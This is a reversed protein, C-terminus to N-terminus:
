VHSRSPGKLVPEPLKLLSSPSPLSFPMFAIPKSQCFLVQSWVLRTLNAELLSKIWTCKSIKLQETSFQSPKVIISWTYWKHCFSDIEGNMLIKSGSCTCMTVHSGCRKPWTHVWSHHLRYKAAFKPKRSSRVNGPMTVLYLKLLYM